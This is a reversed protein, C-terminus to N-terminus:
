NESQVGVTTTSAVAAKRGARSRPKKRYGTGRNFAQCMQWDAWCTDSVHGAGGCRKCSLATTVSKKSDTLGDQVSGWLLSSRPGSGRGREPQRPTGRGPHTNGRGRTGPRISRYASVGGAGRRHYNGWRNSQDLAALHIEPCDADHCLDGIETQSDEEYGFNDAMQASLANVGVGALATPRRAGLSQKVLYAEAIAQLQHLSSSSPDWAAHVAAYLGPERLGMVYTSVVKNQIASEPYALGRAAKRVEDSVRLAWIRHSEGGTQALQELAAWQVQSNPSALAWTLMDVFDGLRNSGSRNFQRLIGRGPGERMCVKLKALSEAEGWANTRMTDCFDEIWETFDTNMGFPPPKTEQRKVVNGGSYQPIHDAVLHRSWELNASRYGTGVASDFGLVSINPNTAGTHEDITRYLSPVQGVASQQVTAEFV